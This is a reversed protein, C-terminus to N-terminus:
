FYTVNRYTQSGDDSASSNSINRYTQSRNDSPIPYTVGRYSQNRNVSPNSYTVNRYTQSRKDSQNSMRSSLRLSEQVGDDENPVILDNNEVQNSNRLSGHREDVENEIELLDDRIIRRDMNSSPLFNSTVLNSNPNYYPQPPQIQTNYNQSPYGQVTGGAYGYYNNDIPYSGSSHDSYDSRTYPGTYSTYHGRSPYPAQYLSNVGGSGYSANNSQASSNTYNAGQQSSNISQSISRMGDSNGDGPGSNFNRSLGNLVEDKKNDRQNKRLKKFICFLLSIVIVIGTLTSIGIIINRTQLSNNSNDPISAVPSVTSTPYPSQSTIISPSSNISTPRPRQNPIQPRTAIVTSGSQTSRVTPQQRQPSRSEFKSFFRPVFRRVLRKIFNEAS